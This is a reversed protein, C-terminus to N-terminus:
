IAKSVYFNVLVESVLSNSDSSTEKTDIGSDTDSPDDQKDIDDKYCM